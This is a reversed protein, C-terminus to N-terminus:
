ANALAAATPPVAPPNGGNAGIVGAGGSLSLLLDTGDGFGSGMLLGPEAEEAGGAAADTLAPTLTGGEGEV